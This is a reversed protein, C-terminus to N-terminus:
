QRNGSRGAKTPAQHDNGSANWTKAGFGFARQRHMLRCRKESHKAVADILQHRPRCPRIRHTPRMFVGTSPPERGWHEVFFDIAARVKAPPSRDPPISPSSRRRPRTPAIILTSPRSTPGVEIRTPPWSPRSTSSARAPSRQPSCPMAMTRACALRQGRRPERSTRVRVGMPGLGMSSALTYGLCNHARSIRSRDRAGM